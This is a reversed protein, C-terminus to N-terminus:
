RVLFVADEWGFAVGGGSNVYSHVQDPLLFAPDLPSLDRLALGTYQGRLELDEASTGWLVTQTMTGARPWESGAVAGGCEGNFGPTLLLEVGEDNVIWLDHYPVPTSVTSDDDALSGVMRTASHLETFIDRLADVQEETYVSGTSPQAYSLPLYTHRSTRRDPTARDEGDIHAFPAAADDACKRWPNAPGSEHLVLQQSDTMQLETWGGEEMACDAFFPALGGPDLPYAGDQAGPHEALLAACSEGAMCAPLSCVSVDADSDDCDFGDAYGDRDADAAFGVTVVSPAASRNGLRDELWVYVSRPGYAGADLSWMSSAQFSRWTGCSPGNSVCMRTIGSIDSAAIHLEVYRDSVVQACDGVTIESIVPPDLEDLPTVNGTAGSSRNGVGDLACVRYGVRLGGVLGSDVFRTDAGRYVEVGAFCSTPARDLDRVVLYDQVGSALDEFGSWSLAAGGAAATLSLAGNTPPTTDLGVVVPAPASEVGWDDRFVAYVTKQGDLPSLTYRLLVAPDGGWDTWAACPLTETLCARRIPSQDTVEARLRVARAGVWDGEPEVSLATVVPPVTDVLPTTRVTLGTDANGFADEACLRFTTTDAGIGTFTVTQGEGAWSLPEVADCAPSIPGPRGVVRYRLGGVGADSFGAWNLTIAGDGPTWGVTGPAPALGDVAVSVRQMASSRGEADRVWARVTFNRGVSPLAFVPAPDYPVWDWCRLATSLCMETVEAAGSAELRLSVSREAVFGRLTDATLADIVPRGGARAAASGMPAAPGPAAAPADTPAGESGGCAGLGLGAM